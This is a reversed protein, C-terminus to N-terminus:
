TGHLSTSIPFRIACLMGAAAECWGTKREASPMANAGGTGFIVGFSKPAKTRTYEDFGLLTQCEPALPRHANYGHKCYCLGRTTDCRGGDADADM